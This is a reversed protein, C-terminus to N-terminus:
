TVWFFFFSFSCALTYVRDLSDRRRRVTEPDYGKSLNAQHRSSQEKASVSHSIILLEKNSLADLAREKPSGHSAGIYSLGISEFLKKKVDQEKASSDINLAAMQKSLSESLQEAASLQACITNHLSHLEQIHRCPLGM